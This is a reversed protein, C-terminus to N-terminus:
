TRDLKSSDNYHGLKVMVIMMKISRSGTDWLLFCRNKVCDLSFQIINYGVDSLSLEDVVIASLNLLCSRM